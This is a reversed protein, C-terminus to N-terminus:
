TNVWRAVRIDVINTATIYIKKLSLILRKVQM